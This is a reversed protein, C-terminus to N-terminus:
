SQYIRFFTVQARDYKTFRPMGGNIIEMNAESQSTRIGWEVWKRRYEAIRRMGVNASPFAAVWLDSYTTTFNLYYCHIEYVWRQLSWDASLFLCCSRTLCLWVYISQNSNIM